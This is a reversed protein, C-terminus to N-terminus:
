EEPAQGMIGPRQGMSNVGFPDVGEETGRKQVYAATQHVSGDKYFEALQAKAAEREEPAPNYSEVYLQQAYLLAYEREKDTLETGHAALLETIDDILETAVGMLIDMDLERGADEAQKAAEQVLAFVMEGMVRGRDDAQMLGEVIGKEGPGYVYNRLGASLMVFTDEDQAVAQPQRASQADDLGMMTAM